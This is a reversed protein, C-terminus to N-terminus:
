HDVIGRNSPLLTSIANHPYRKTGVAPAALRFCILKTHSLLMRLRLMSILFPASHMSSPLDLNSYAGGFQAPCQLPLSPEQGGDVGLRALM